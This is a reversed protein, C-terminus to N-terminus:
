WREDIPTQICSAINDTLAKLESLANPTLSSGWPGKRPLKKYEDPTGYGVSKQLYSIDKHTIKFKNNKAFFNISSQISYDIYNAKVNLRSNALIMGSDEDKLKIVEGQPIFATAEERKGGGFLGSLGSSTGVLMVADNRVNQIICIEARKIIAHKDLEVDVIRDETQEIFKNEESFVPNVAMVNIAAFAILLAWKYNKM